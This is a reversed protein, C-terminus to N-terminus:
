LIWRYGGKSTMRKGSKNVKQCILGRQTIDKALTWVEMGVYKKLFVEVLAETGWHGGEHLAKLVERIITKPLWVRDDSM